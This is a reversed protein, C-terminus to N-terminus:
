KLEEAMPIEEGASVSHCCAGLSGRRMRVAVASAAAWREPHQLPPPQAACSPLSCDNFFGPWQGRHVDLVVSRTSRAREKWGRVARGRNVAVRM